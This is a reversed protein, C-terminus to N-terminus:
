KEPLVQTITFVPQYVRALCLVGTAMLSALSAVKRFTGETGRLIAITLGMGCAIALEARRNDFQWRQFRRGQRLHNAAEIQEQMDHFRDSKVPKIGLLWNFGPPCWSPRDSGHHLRTELARDIPRLGLSENLSAFLVDRRQSESFAPRNKQLWADGLKASVERALVTQRSFGVKRELYATLEVGADLRPDNIARAWEPTALEENIWQVRDRVEQVKQPVHFVLEAAACPDLQGAGIDPGREPRNGPLTAGRTARPPRNRRPIRGARRRHPVDSSSADSEDSVHQSLNQGGGGTTPLSQDPGGVPPTVATCPSVSFVADLPDDSASHSQREEWRRELHAVRNARSM